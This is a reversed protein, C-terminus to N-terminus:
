LPLTYTYLSMPVRPYHRLAKISTTVLGADYVDGPLKNTSVWAGGWEYQILIKTKISGQTIEMCTPKHLLTRSSTLICQHVPNNEFYAKATNYICDYLLQFDM